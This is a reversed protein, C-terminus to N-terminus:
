PAHIATVYAAMDDKGDEVIQWLQLSIMGAGSADFDRGDGRFPVGATFAANGM